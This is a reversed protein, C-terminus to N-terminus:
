AIRGSTEILKATIIVHFICLETLGVENWERTVLLNKDGSGKGQPKSEEGRNLDSMIVDIAASGLRASALAAPIRPAIFGYQSRFSKNYRNIVEQIGALDPMAELLGAGQDGKWLQDASNHQSTAKFREIEKRWRADELSDTFM